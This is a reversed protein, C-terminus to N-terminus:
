YASYGTRRIVQQGKENLLVKHTTVADGTNDPLGAIEKRDVLGQYFKDAATRAEPSPIDGEVATITNHEDLTLMPTVPVPIYLPKDNLTSVPTLKLAPLQIQKDAGLKPHGSLELDFEGLQSKIIPTIDPIDSPM